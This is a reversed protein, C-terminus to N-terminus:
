DDVKSDLTVIVQNYVTYLEIVTLIELVDEDGYGFEKLQQIQNDVSSENAHKIRSM